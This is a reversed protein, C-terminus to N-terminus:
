HLKAEQTATTSATEDDEPGTMDFLLRQEKNITIKLASTPIRVSKGSRSLSVIAFFPINPSDPYQEVLEAIEQRTRMQLRIVEGTQGSHSNRRNIVKVRAHPWQRVFRARDVPDLLLSNNGEMIYGILTSAAEKTTPIDTIKFQKLLRVQKATPKRKSAM